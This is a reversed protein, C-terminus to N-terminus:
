NSRRKPKKTIREKSDDFSFGQRKEKNPWRLFLSLECLNTQLDRGKKVEKNISMISYVPYM